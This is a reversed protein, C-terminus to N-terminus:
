ELDNLFNIQIKTNDTDDKIMYPITLHKSLYIRLFPIEQEELKDDQQWLRYELAQLKNGNINLPDYNAGIKKLSIPQITPPKIFDWQNKSTWFSYINDSTNDFKKSRLFVMSCCASPTTIHFKNPTKLEHEHLKDKKDLFSYILTNHRPDYDYIEKISSEGLNREIMVFFPIYDKNVKYTIKMTLLEGTAVRSHLESEFTHVNDKKEKSVDFTEECYITDNRLYKYAGKLVKYSTSENM